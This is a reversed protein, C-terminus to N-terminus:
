QPRPVEAVRFRERGMIELKDATIRGNADVYFMVLEGRILNKAASAGFSFPRGAPV